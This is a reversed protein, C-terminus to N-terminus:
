PRFGIPRKTGPNPPKMLQKIADVLSVIAQDHTALRREIELVKAALEKNSALTKRLNAFVRVVFISMEVARRSNVINAAMIVGYETFVYPLSKSFKLSPLHDCKAVVEIKEAETLQFM